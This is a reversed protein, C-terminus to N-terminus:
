RCYAQQKFTESTLSIGLQSNFLNMASTEIKQPLKDGVNEQFERSLMNLINELTKCLDEISNINSQM